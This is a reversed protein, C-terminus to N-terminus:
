LPECPEETRAELAEEALGLWIADTERAGDFFEYQVAPFPAGRHAGRHLAPRCCGARARIPHGPATEIASFPRTNLTLVLGPPLSNSLLLRLAAVLRGSCSPYIEYRLSSHVHGRSKYALLRV